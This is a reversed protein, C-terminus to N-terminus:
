GPANNTVEGIGFNDYDYMETQQGETEIDITAHAFNSYVGINANPTRYAILADRYPIGIKRAEEPIDEDSTHLIYSRGPASPDSLMAALDARGALHAYQPMSRWDNNGSALTMLLPVLDVHSTLQTRETGKQDPPVFTGTPDYVYLPVRTSEEYVAFAKGRL